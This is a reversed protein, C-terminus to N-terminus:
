KAIALIKQYGADTYVDSEKNVLGLFSFDLKDPPETGTQNNSPSLGKLDMDSGGEGITVNYGKASIQRGIEWYCKFVNKEREGLGLAEVNDFCVTKSKGDITKNEWAWSQCIIDRSNKYHVVFFCSNPQTQGYFASTAGQAFPHQCCNTYNGLLLGRTDSRPLFRAVYVKNDSELEFYADSWTPLPVDLSSLYINEVVKYNVEIGDNHVSLDFPIFKTQDFSSYPDMSEESEEGTYAQAFELLFEDSQPDYKASIDKINQMFLDNYLKRSDIKKQEVTLQNWKAVILKLFKLSLKSNLIYEGLGEAEEKTYPKLVQLADHLNSFRSLWDKSRKGFINYVVWSKEIYDTIGNASAQSIDFFQYILKSSAGFLENNKACSLTYILKEYEDSGREVNRYVRNIRSLFENLKEENSDFYLVFIILEATTFKDIDGNALMESLDENTIPYIDSGLEDEPPYDYDERAFFSKLLPLGLLDSWKKTVIIGLNKANDPDNKLDNLNLLISLKQSFSKNKLIDDPLNNEFIPYIDTIQSFSDNEQERTAYLSPDKLIKQEIQEVISHINEYDTFKIPYETLFMIAKFKKQLDSIYEDTNNIFEPQLYSISQKDININRNKFPDLFQKILNELITEYPTSIKYQSAQFIPHVNSALQLKFDNLFRNKPASPKQRISNNSIFTLSNTRVIENLEEVSYTCILEFLIDVGVRNYQPLKKLEDCFYSYNSNLKSVYDYISELPQTKNIQKKHESNDDQGTIKKLGTQLVFGNYRRQSDLLYQPPVNYFLPDLEGEAINSNTIQYEIESFKSNDVIGHKLCYKALYKKSPAHYTPIVPLNKLCLIQQDLDHKLFDCFYESQIELNKIAKFSAFNGMAAILDTFKKFLYLTDTNNNPYKLVLFSLQFIDSSQQCYELIKNLTKKQEETLEDTILRNFSKHHHSSGFNLGIKFFNMTNEIEELSGTRIISSDGGSELYLLFRELFDYTANTRQIISKAISIHVTHDCLFKLIEDPLQVIYDKTFHKGLNNYLTELQQTTVSFGLNTQLYNIYDPNQAFKKFNFM